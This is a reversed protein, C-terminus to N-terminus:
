NKMLLAGVSPAFLCLPAERGSVSSKRASSAISYNISPFRRRPVHQAAGFDRPWHRSLTLRSRTADAAFRAIDTIAGFRFYIRLM